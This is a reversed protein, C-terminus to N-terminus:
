EVRGSRERSIDWRRSLGRRKGAPSLALALESVSPSSPAIRRWVFISPFLVHSARRIEIPSLRAHACISKFRGASVIFKAAPIGRPNKGQTILTQLNLDKQTATEQAMDINGPSHPAPTTDARSRTAIAPFAPLLFLFAALLFVFLTSRWCKSGQAPFGDTFNVGLKFQFRASFFSAFRARYSGTASRVFAKPEGGEIASM